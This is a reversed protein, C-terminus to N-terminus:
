STSELRLGFYLIVSLAEPHRPFYTSPMKGVFERLARPLAQFSCLIGGGGLIAIHFLITRPRPKRPEYPVTFEIEASHTPTQAPFAPVYVCLCVCVGRKMKCVLKRKTKCM